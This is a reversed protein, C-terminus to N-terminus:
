NNAEMIPIMQDVLVSLLLELVYFKLAPFPTSIKVMCVPNVASIEDTENNITGKQKLYAVILEDNEISQLPATIIKLSFASDYIVHLLKEVSFEKLAALVIDLEAPSLKKMKDTRGNSHRLAIQKARYAIGKQTLLVTISELKQHNHM